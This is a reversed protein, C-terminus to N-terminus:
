KNKGRLIENINRLNEDVLNICCPYYLVTKDYETRCDPTIFAICDNCEHTECYEVAEKWTM